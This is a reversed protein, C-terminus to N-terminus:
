RLLPSAPVYVRSKEAKWALEGAFIQKSAECLVVGAFSTFWRQGIEEMAVASSLLMRSHVPPVYLATASRYPTFMADRLTRSLQATTYPHGHGFPTRELQAWLGRRNPAVVILRGGDALVRWIERMMSRTHGACELAHVLLIRDVSRDAFPLATEEALLALNPADNPWHLVGQAAPMLALVRQAEARFVGLFPAAYGLGVINSGRVDPWLARIRRGIMRRTVRGLGSAYFDRLDVADMWM